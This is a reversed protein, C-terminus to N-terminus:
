TKKKECKGPHHCVTAFFITMWFIYFTAAKLQAMSMKAMGMTRYHQLPEKNQLKEEGEGGDGCENM